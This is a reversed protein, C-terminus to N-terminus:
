HLMPAGEGLEGTEPDKREIFNDKLCRVTVTEDKLVYTFQTSEQCNICQMSGCDATFTDNNSNVIEFKRGIATSKVTM